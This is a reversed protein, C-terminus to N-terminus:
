KKSSKKREKAKLGHAKKDEKNDDTKKEVKVESRVSKKWQEKSCYKWSGMAVKEQAVEDKVRDITKGSESIICKMPSEEM